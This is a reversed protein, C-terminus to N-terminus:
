GAGNRLNRLSKHDFGDSFTIQGALDLLDKEKHRDVLERLALTVVDRPSAAGTLRLAEDVLCDDIGITTTM